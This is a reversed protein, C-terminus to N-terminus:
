TARLSASSHRVVLASLQGSSDGTRREDNTTRREDDDFWCTIADGSFGVVSGGFREVQAILADYVQNLLATLEEAGRRPGYALALAEALPTFGTVDAFMVAGSARRPYEVGCALAARRDQAIYTSLDISM